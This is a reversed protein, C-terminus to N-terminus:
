STDVVGTSEMFRLFWISDAAKYNFTQQDYNGLAEVRLVDIRSVKSPEPLTKYWEQLMRDLASLNYQQVDYLTSLECGFVNQSMVEWLLGALFQQAVGLAFTHMLDARLLVSPSAYSWLPNNRRAHTEASPRWFLVNGPQM